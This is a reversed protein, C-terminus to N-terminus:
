YASVSQLNILFPGDKKDYIYLGMEQIRSIDLVPGDLRLGRFQPYFSTFPLRIILAEGITTDFDAWYSIRRGRYVADTQLQWSYRRGDGEAILEIGEYDSLDITVANSRISSFGGGDTNTTGSFVIHGDQQQLAGESRGGMVSDNQVYWGLDRSSETFDTITLSAEASMTNGQAILAIVLLCRTITALFLKVQIMVQVHM